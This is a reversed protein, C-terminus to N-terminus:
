EWLQFGGPLQPSTEAAPAPLDRGTVPLLVGSCASLQTPEPGSRSGVRHGCVGLLFGAWYSMLNAM